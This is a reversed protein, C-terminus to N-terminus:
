SAVRQLSLSKYKKVGRKLGQAKGNMAIFVADDHICEQANHKDYCKNRVYIFLQITVRSSHKSLLVCM